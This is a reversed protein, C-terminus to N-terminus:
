HLAPCAAGRVDLGNKKFTSGFAAFEAFVDRERSDDEWLATRLRLMHEAPTNLAKTKKVAM